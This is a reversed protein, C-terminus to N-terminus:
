EGEIRNQYIHRDKKASIKDRFQKYALILTYLKVLKICLENYVIDSIVTKFCWFYFILEWKRWYLVICSEYPKLSEFYQTMYACTYQDTFVM